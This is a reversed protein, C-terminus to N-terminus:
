NKELLPIGYALEANILADIKNEFQFYRVVKSASLIKKFKPYYKNQLQLVDKKYAQAATWLEDAKEDTMNEYSEAFDFIVAIRQNHVKYLEFNYENYLEWFPGSEDNTFQMVETVAVKKEMSLVERVLEVYDRESQAYTLNCFLLTIAISLITTKM